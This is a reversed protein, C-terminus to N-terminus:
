KAVVVSGQVRFDTGVLEIFYVGPSFGAVPISVINSGSRSRIARRWVLRGLADIVRVEADVARDASYRVSVRDSAPNPYVSELTFPGVPLEVEVGVSLEGTSIPETPDAVFGLRSVAVISYYVPGTETDPLVDDYSIRDRFVVAALDEADSANPASGSRRFVVYWGVPDADAGASPTWEVHIRHPGDVTVSVSDPKSPAQAEFRLSVPPQLSLADFRGNFDESRTFAERFFAMGQAGNNRTVDIQSSLESVVEPVYLAIGPYIHRSSVNGAVWDNVLCTFSPTKTNSDAWYLQPALYDNAGEALWLRSDQFVDDYGTLAGPYCTEDYNGIPTSGIKLWPKIASVASQIARMLRNINDRRWDDKTAIGSPNTAVFLSDDRLYGGQNYRAFDFHVADVDYRQVLEVVNGVIWDNVGPYGPNLWAGNAETWEPHDETVHKPGTSGTATKAIRYTNIWAHLEMGNEHAADIAVGLPDFGPDQGTTGTLVASWPLRQSKYFADGRTVVQFYVTNLGHSRAGAILQRLQAEQESPNAGTQPWDLGSATTLWVARTEFLPQSRAAFAACCFVLSFLIRHLRL